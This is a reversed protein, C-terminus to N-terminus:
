QWREPLILATIMLNSLLHWLALRSRSATWRTIQLNRGSTETEPLPNKLDGAYSLYNVDSEDAALRCLDRGYGGEAIARMVTKVAPFDDFARYDTLFSMLRKDKMVSMGFERIIKRLADQLKM